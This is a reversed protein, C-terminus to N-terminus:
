KASEFEKLRNRVRQEANERISCTNIFIVDAERYDRTTEFGKDLLISAVIESDSFNMQCGYSEIYLKRGDGKKPDSEILLAEGQRSEDHQKTTTPTEFMRM